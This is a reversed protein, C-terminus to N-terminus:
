YKQIEAAYWDTSGPEGLEKLLRQWESSLEQSIRRASQPDHWVPPHVPHWLDSRLVDGGDIATHLLRRLEPPRVWSVLIHSSRVLLGPKIEDLQRARFGIVENETVSALLKLYAM